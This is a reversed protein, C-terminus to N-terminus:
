LISQNPPIYKKKLHAFTDLIEIFIKRITAFDLESFIENDTPKRFDNDFIANDLKKYDSYQIVKPSMRKHKENLVTVVHKHFHPLATEITCTSKFGRASNNLLLDICSRNGINKYCTHDQNPLTVNYHNCLLHSSVKKVDVNFDGM